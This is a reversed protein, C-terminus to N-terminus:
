NDQLPRALVLAPILIMALGGFFEGGYQPSQLM